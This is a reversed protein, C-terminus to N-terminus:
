RIKKTEERPKDAPGIERGKKTTLFSPVEMVPTDSLVELRKADFWHCPAMENEKGAQHPMRLSIQVCGYLDFCVSDVVGEFGTVRDKAKLGLYKLYEEVTM